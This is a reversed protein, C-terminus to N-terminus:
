RCAGCFVNLSVEARTGVFSVGSGRGAKNENGAVCPATCATRRRCGNRCLGACQASLWHEDELLAAVQPLLGSAFPPDLFVIEFPQAPRGSFACRM